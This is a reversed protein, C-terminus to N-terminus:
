KQLFTAIKLEVARRPYTNRLWNQKLAADRDTANTEVPPLLRPTYPGGYTAHRTWVEQPALQTLMDSSKLGLEKTRSAPIRSAAAIVRARRGM